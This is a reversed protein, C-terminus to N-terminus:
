SASVARGNATVPRRLGEFLLALDRTLRELDHRSEITRRAATGVDTWREPHRAVKVIAKGLADPDREPVLWGTVDHQILEPIGSHNSAVVPLGRAMAELLVM